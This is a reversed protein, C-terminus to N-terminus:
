ISLDSVAGGRSIVVLPVEYFLGKFYILIGTYYIHFPEGLLRKPPMEHIMGECVIPWYVRINFDSVAGGLM